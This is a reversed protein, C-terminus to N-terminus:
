KQRASSTQGGLAVEVRTSLPDPFVVPSTAPSAGLNAQWWAQAEEATWAPLDVEGTLLFYGVWGLSYLDLRGDIPDGTLLEPPMYAPTGATIGPGSLLTQATTSATDHKVLGFDLVKM